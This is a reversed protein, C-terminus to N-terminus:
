SRRGSEVELAQLQALQEDIREVLSRADEEELLGNREAERLASKEAILARKRAEATQREQLSADSLHLAEIAEEVGELRRRYEQGVTDRGARALIGRAYLRDLEALAAECALREGALRQYETERSRSGALGLRTLLAGITLGQALLSFAVVGFTLVVLADRHPFQRSLGLALAMSLAGRLGGWVLVHRWSWPFSGEFRRALPALGYVSIARAALVILVAVLIAGISGWLNVLTVEIGLLLFVISNVAFAAYEWFSSVALRSTPSMGQQMGYNGEVLGAVVVAIVGSVHVAEAGLYAGFAVVTTLMIELLHDDFASTVRSALWGIGGGVAAGGVVVIVFQQVGAVPSAGSGTAAATLVGFLVVAVGDNFLSEGEITLSLRKGVGLRKFVALVSIPDTPSILAGFALAVLVPLHLLWAALAGVVSTSILTGLLAFVTVSAWHRRLEEVRLNIAAEFLLPPLFVTFLTHPELHAEPLLHPAGIVLGTIVLAIAYPLRLRRGMMAVLTAVLLLWFFSTVDPSPSPEM